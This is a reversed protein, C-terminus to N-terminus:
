RRIGEVVALAKAVQDNDRIALAARFDNRAADLHGQYLSLLGRFYLARQNEPWAALLRDLEGRAA